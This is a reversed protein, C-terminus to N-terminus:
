HLMTPVSFAEVSNKESRFGAGSNYLLGSFSKGKVHMWRSLELSERGSRGPGNGIGATLMRSGVVVVVVVVMRSHLIIM